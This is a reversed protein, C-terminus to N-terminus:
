STKRNKQSLVNSLVTPDTHAYSYAGDDVYGVMLGCEGDSTSCGRDPIKIDINHNHIVDPQDCTYLLWLIPGGISGQPVGCGPIDLEPSLNGDVFCSQKRGWLYSSFWNVTSDDVGM